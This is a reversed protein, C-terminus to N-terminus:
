WCITRRLSPIYLTKIEKKTHASSNFIDPRKTVLAVLLNHSDQKQHSTDKKFAELTVKDAVREKVLKREQVTKRHAETKQINHDRRFFDRIYQGAGM